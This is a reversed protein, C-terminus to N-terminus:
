NIMQIDMRYQHYGLVARGVKPLWANGQGTGLGKRKAKFKWPNHVQQVQKARLSRAIKIIKQEPRNAVPGLRCHIQYQISLRYKFPSIAHIPFFSTDMYQHLLWKFSRCPSMLRNVFMSGDAWIYLVHDAGIAAVSYNTLVTTTPSGELFFVQCCCRRCGQRCSRCWWSCWCCDHKLLLMYNWHVLWLLLWLLSFRVDLLRLPLWWGVVWHAWFNAPWADATEVGLVQSRIPEM